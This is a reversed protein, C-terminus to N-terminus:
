VRRTKSAKRTKRAKRKGGKSNSKNTNSKNSKNNKNKSNNKNITLESIIRAKEEAPIRIGSAEFAKILAAKQETPITVRHFKDTETKIYPAMVDQEYMKYPGDEMTFIWSKIDPSRMRSITDLMERSTSQGLKIGPVFVNKHVAKGNLYDTTPVMAEVFEPKFNKTMYGPYFGYM